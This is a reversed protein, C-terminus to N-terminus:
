PSIMSSSGLLIMFSSVTLLVVSSTGMGQIKHIIVHCASIYKKGGIVLNCFLQFYLLILYIFEWFLSLTIFDLAMEGSILFCALTVWLVQFFHKVFMMCRSVSAYFCQGPCCCRFFRDSQLAWGLYTQKSGEWVNYPPCPRQIWRRWKRRCAFQWCVEAWICRCFWSFFFISYIAIKLECIFCDPWSGFSLFHSRLKYM